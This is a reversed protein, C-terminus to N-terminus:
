KTNKNPKMGKGAKKGKGEKKMEEMKKIQEATLISKRQTKSADKVAKIQENKQEMTLSQNDQISKIKNHVEQNHAKLKEAQDNSLNLKDKMMDARKGDLQKSSAEMGSRGAAVKAKQEPTLLAEMKAKHEDHIAKQRAKMERVTINEDKRLAEMKAKYTERDAKLQTKQAETLNVNNIKDGKEGQMKHMGHKGGKMERREQASASFGAIALIMTFAIIKKM